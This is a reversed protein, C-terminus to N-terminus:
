ISMREERKYVSQLPHQVQGRHARSKIDYDNTYGVSHTHTTYIELQKSSGMMTNCKPHAATYYKMRKQAM